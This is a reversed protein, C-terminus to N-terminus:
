RHPHTAPVEAGLGNAGWPPPPAPVPRELDFEIRYRPTPADRYLAYAFTRGPQMELVWVNARARPILAATAADAPFSQRGATGADPTDGGYWTISDPHGDEHRHDHKLRLGKLTRSVVWTRSRNGGVHFPIRISDGGCERVHMVLRRGTFSTDTPPAVVVRGEYSRGCLDHLSSWFSEQPEALRVRALRPACSAGALLLTLLVLAAAARM